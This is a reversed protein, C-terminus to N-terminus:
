FLSGKRKKVLGRGGSNTQIHTHTAPDGVQQETVSHGCLLDCFHPCLMKVYEKRKWTDYKYKKSIKKKIEKM